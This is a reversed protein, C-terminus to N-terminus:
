TIPSAFLFGVDIVNSVDGRGKNKKMQLFAEVEEQEEMLKTLM